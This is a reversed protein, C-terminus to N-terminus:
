EPVPDDEYGPPWPQQYEDEYHGIPYLPHQIERENPSPHPLGAVVMMGCAECHYQGIPQGSLLIPQGECPKRSKGEYAGWDIMASVAALASDIINVMHDIQEESPPDSLKISIMNRELFPTYRM